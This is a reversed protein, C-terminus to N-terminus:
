PRATAFARQVARLINRPANRRASAIVTQRFGLRPRYVARPEFLVLLKLGKPRPNKRRRGSPTHRSQGTRQYIGPPLHRAGKTGGVVIDTRGKLRRLAGRPINGYVNTRQEVPINIPSGPQPTRVGGTEQLRLYSAQIDKVFVWAVPKDRRAPTIAVGRRTFPTPRDLRGPMSLDVDRKADKATETLGQALGFAIQREANALGRITAKASVKAM